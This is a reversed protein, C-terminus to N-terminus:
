KKHSTSTGADAKKNDKLEYNEILLNIGKLSVRFELRKLRDRKLRHVIYLCILGVLCIVAIMM